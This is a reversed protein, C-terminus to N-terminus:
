RTLLLRGSSGTRTWVFETWLREGYKNLILKLLIRVDLELEGVNKKSELKRFPICENRM